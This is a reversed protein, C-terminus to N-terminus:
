CRMGDEDPEGVFPVPKGCEDMMLAGCGLGLKVLEPSLTDIWEQSMTFGWPKNAMLDHKHRDNDRARLEASAIRMAERRRKIHGDNRRWDGLMDKCEAITPFWRCESMARDAMYTIADAPYEILMRAYATVFLEGSIEDSSQRPLVALMIRLAQNFTLEDCPDLRPLPSNAIEEVM